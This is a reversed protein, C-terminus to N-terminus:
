LYSTESRKCGEEEGTVWVDTKQREDRRMGGGSGLCVGVVRRKISVEM